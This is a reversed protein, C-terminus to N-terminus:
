SELCSLLHDYPPYDSESVFPVVFHVTKSRSRACYRKDSFAMSSHSLSTSGRPGADIFGETYKILTFGISYAMVM